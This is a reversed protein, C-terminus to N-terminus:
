GGGPGGERVMGGPELGPAAFDGLAAFGHVDRGLEMYGVSRGPRVVVEGVVLEVPGPRLKMPTSKGSRNRGVLAVRDGPHVVLDLGDFLPNGGFGLTLGSLQLLPLQAM